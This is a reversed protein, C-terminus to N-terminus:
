VRIGRQALAFRALQRVRSCDVNGVAGRELGEETGSSDRFDRLNVLEQLRGISVRAASTELIRSLADATERPAMAECALRLLPELADVGIEAVAAWDSHAIAATAREVNNRPRWNLKELTWVASTRIGIEPDELLAELSEIARTEGIDALAMSAAERVALPQNMDRSVRVLADIGERGIRILTRAADRAVSQYRMAAVLLDVADQGVATTEDWDRHAIAYQARRRGDVPRCGTRELAKAAAYRVPWEEDGLLGVLLQAAETRGCASLGEAATV